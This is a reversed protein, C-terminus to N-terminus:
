DIEDGFIELSYITIRGYFDSSNPFTLKFYKSPISSNNIEFEQLNNSDSADDLVDVSEM